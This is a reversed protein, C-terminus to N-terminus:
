FLPKEFIESINVKTQYSNINDYDIKIILYYKKVSKLASLARNDAKSLEYFVENNKIENFYHSYM